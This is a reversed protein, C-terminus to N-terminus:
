YPENCFRKRAAVMRALVEPRKISHLFVAGRNTVAYDMVGEWYDQNPPLSIGHPFTRHKIGAAHAVAMIWWDVFPTDSDGPVDVSLMKHIVERSFFYPPQFAMRPWTYGEARPCVADSVENSWLVGEEEYLYDPLEAALCISDADNSLFFEYPFRLLASFQARTRDIAIQGLHQRFGLHFFLPPSAARLFYVPADEPSMVVIPCEHREHHPLMFEIQHQDGSYGHISVLTNPNM